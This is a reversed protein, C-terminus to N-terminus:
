VGSWEFFQSVQRCFGPLLPSRLVDEALLTAGSGATRKSPSISTYEFIAQKLCFNSTKFLHTV